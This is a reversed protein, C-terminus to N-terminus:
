HALRLHCVLCSFYKDRINGPIILLAFRPYAIEAADKQSLTTVAVFNGPLRVFIDRKLECIRDCRNDVLVRAVNLCHTKNDGPFQFMGGATPVQENTTRGRSVLMIHFGTLGGVPIILLGVIIMIVISVISEPTEMESKGHVLMYLLSLGFVSLM